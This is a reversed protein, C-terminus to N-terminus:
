KILILKMTKHLNDFVLKNSLNNFSIKYIYVGSSLNAANFQVTYRGETKEENVLRAVERGIIDYVILTVFAPEPLEYKITTALNFPNPYNQYLVYNDPILNSKSRDPPSVQITGATMDEVFYNYFLNAANANYRLNIISSLHNVGMGGVLAIVVEATDGLELDIPGSMLWMRRAGPGDTIGDIQGTGTVPDGPLMYTGPGIFEGGTYISPYRPIPLYGRMLNYFELTGNYDYNPDSFYGGTRHLIAGSLPKTNFYRRGKVWKFNVIASDSQNGTIHSAGQFFSYGVAPPELGFQLYYQDTNNSNYAYGLNLTTDSGIFDDSGNGINADAWQCIYMSDIFSNLVSSTDGKYILNVKKYIVNGIPGEFYYAWYTEQIELGIPRSGYMNMSLSDNYNIWITQIAGPVGPIDINPNYIGDNDKDFYPAGLDGPWENWDKDYQNKIQLIDDETVHIINKNFYNAADNTLNATFYDYRVRFLRTNPACGSGYNNGNVRVVPAHGDYVLGGWCIGESFIVGVPKGNPYSGNFVNNDVIWDHFGESSVWSTIKSVDILSRDLHQAITFSNFICINCLLVLLYFYFYKTKM